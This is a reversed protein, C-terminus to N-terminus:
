KAIKMSLDFGKRKDKEDDKMLGKFIKARDGPNLGFKAGHKLINQYENKMVSYEPCVMPYEGTKTAMMYTTGHDKCYMAAKAHLDFSNALLALEYDDIDFMKIKSECHKKLAKFILLGNESLFDM